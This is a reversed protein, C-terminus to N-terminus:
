KPNIPSLAGEPRCVQSFVRMLNGGLIGKIGPRSFGSDSLRQALNPIAGTIDELGEPWILHEQSPYNELDWCGTRVMASWNRENFDRFFYDFGISLHDSGALDAVHTFHHMLSSMLAPREDSVFLPFSTIGVVGGTDAIAFIVEDSINRMNQYISYPNSHSCIVPHKSLECAEIVSGWSTQSGDIVVGLRNCEPILRRGLNSLGVHQNPELCGECWHNRRNYALQLVMLGLRWHIELNAVDAGLNEAGQMHYIIGLKHMEKALLIQDVSTILM